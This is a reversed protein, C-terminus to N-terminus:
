TSKRMLWWIIGMGFLESGFVYYLVYRGTPDNILFDFNEPMAFQMFFFFGVPFCAVIIASMRAESTMAKKKKEMKNSDAIVRGLRSIVERIQGGKNLNTRVITIFFYFEKYPYRDYSDDFVTAPDEGISLRRHISKFEEGLQGTLDKGCRELAQLLGVSSTAAANLIQIVEPFMANFTKKNRYQGLKWIFLVFGVLFILCFVLRDIHIYAVNIVFFAFFIFCSIVINRVLNKKDGKTFHYYWLSVKSKLNKFFSTTRSVSTDYENIKRKTSFWSSLTYIFLLGGITLVAYYLYHSM